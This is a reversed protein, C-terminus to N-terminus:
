TSNTTVILGTRSGILIRCVRLEHPQDPLIDLGMLIGGVCARKRLAGDYCDCFCLVNM